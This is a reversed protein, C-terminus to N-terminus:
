ISQIFITISVKAPRANENSGANSSYISSIGLFLFSFIIFLYIAFSINKLPSYEVIIHIHNKFDSNILHKYLYSIESLYINVAKKPNNIKIAINLANLQLVCLILTSELINFFLTNMNM